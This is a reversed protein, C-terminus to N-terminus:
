NQGAGRKKQHHIGWLVILINPHTLPFYTAISGYPDYHLNINLLLQPFFFGWMKNGRLLTLSPHVSLHTPLCVCLVCFPTLLCSLTTLICYVVSFSYFKNFSHTFLFFFFLFIVLSISPKQRSLTVQPTTLYLVPLATCHMHCNGAEHSPTEIITKFHGSCPGRLKLKKRLQQM